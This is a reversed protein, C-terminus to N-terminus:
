MEEEKRVPKAQRLVVYSKANEASASQYAIEIQRKKRIGEMVVDLVGQKEGERLQGVAHSYVVPSALETGASGLQGCIKEMGKQATKWLATGKLPELFGLAVYFATAEDPTFFPASTLFQEDLTWWKRNKEDRTWRLPFRTELKEFDRYITRVDVGLTEALMELTLGREARALLCLIEWQRSLRDTM